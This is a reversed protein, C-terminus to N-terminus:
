FFHFISKSFVSISVNTVPFAFLLFIYVYIHLKLSMHNRIAPLTKEECIAKEMHNASNKM